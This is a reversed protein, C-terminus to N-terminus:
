NLAILADGVLTSHISEQGEPVARQQEMYTQHGRGFRV